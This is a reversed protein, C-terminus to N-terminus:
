PQVEEVRALARTLADLAGRAMATASQVGHAPAVVERIQADLADTWATDCSDAWEIDHLVSALRGLHDALATVHPANPHRSRLTDAAAEVKCSVYDYSGGSM